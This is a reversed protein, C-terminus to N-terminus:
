ATLRTPGSAVTPGFARIRERLQAPRTSGSASDVDVEIPYAGVVQGTVEARTAILTLDELEGDTAVLRADAFRESWGYNGDLFVVVGDGLRNATIAKNTM